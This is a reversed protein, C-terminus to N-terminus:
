ELQYVNKSQLGILLIVKNGSMQDSVYDLYHKSKFVVPRTQTEILIDTVTHLHIVQTM